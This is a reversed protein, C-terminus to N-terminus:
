KPKIQLHEMKKNAFSKLGVFRFGLNQYLKKAKPNDEDVLLGMTKQQETVYLQILHELLLSGIGKGRHDPAVAICDIYMEGSETEDEFSFNKEYMKKLQDEVPARLKYLDAGDYLNTAAIVNGHLEIVWCNEFSYQNHKQRVLSLLFDTATIKEKKDILSYVIDEMAMFLLGAILQADEIQAKRIIM